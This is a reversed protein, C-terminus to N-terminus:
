PKFRYKQPNDRFVQCLDLTDQGQAKAAALLAIFDGQPMDLIAGGDEFPPNEAAANFDIRLSKGSIAIISAIGAELFACAVVNDQAPKRLFARITFQPPLAAKGTVNRLDLVPERFDPTYIKRELEEHSLAVPIKIGSRLVLASRKEDLGMMGDVASSTFSFPRFCNEKEDMIWARILRDAVDRSTFGAKPSFDNM